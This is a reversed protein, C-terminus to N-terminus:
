LFVKMLLLNNDVQNSNNLYLRCLNSILCSSLCYIFVHLCSIGLLIDCLLFLFLFGIILLLGVVVISSFWWWLLLLWSVSTIFYLHCQILVQLTHIQLSPNTWPWLILFPWCWITIVIKVIIIVIIKITSWRKYTFLM